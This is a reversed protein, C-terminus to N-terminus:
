AYIDEVAITIGPPDLGIECVLVIRTEIEGDDGRRHHVIQLKNAWVILSHRL